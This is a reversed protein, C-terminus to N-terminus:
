RSTGRKLSSTSGNVAHRILAPRGNRYALSVSKANTVTWADLMTQLDHTKIGEYQTFQKQKM